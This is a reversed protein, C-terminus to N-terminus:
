LDVAEFEALFKDSDEFALEGDQIRKLEEEKLTTIENFKKCGCVCSGLKTITSYVVLEQCDKCRLLYDHARGLAEYYRPIREAM